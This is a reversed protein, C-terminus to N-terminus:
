AGQARGKIHSPHRFVFAEARRSGIHATRGRCQRWLEGPSPAATREKPSQKFECVEKTEKEDRGVAAKRVGGGLTGQFYKVIRISGEPDANPVGM